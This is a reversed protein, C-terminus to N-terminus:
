LTMAGRRAYHTADSVAAILDYATFPRAIQLDDAPGDAKSDGIWVINAEPCFRRFREAVAASSGDAMQRELILVDFAGDICALSAHGAHAAPSVRCGAMTLVRSAAARLDSDDSVFLVTTM